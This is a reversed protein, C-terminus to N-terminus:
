TGTFVLPLAHTTRRAIDKMSIFLMGIPRVLYFLFYLLTWPRTILDWGKEPCLSGCRQCIYLVSCWLGDCALNRLNWAVNPSVAHKIEIYNVLVMMSLVRIVVLQVVTGQLRSRLRQFYTRPTTLLGRCRQMEYMIRNRRECKWRYKEQILNTLSRLILLLELFHDVFYM